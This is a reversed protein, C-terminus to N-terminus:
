NVCGVASTLPQTVCHINRATPGVILLSYLFLAATHLAFPLPSVCGVHSLVGLCDTHTDIALDQTMTLTAGTVSKIATAIHKFTM